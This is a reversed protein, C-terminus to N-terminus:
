LPTYNFDTDGEREFLQLFLNNFKSSQNQWLSLTKIRQYQGDNEWQFNKSPM